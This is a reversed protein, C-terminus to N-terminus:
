SRPAQPSLQITVARRSEEGTDLSIRKPDIRWRETLQSQIAKARQEALNGNRRWERREAYGTLRVALSSYRALIQGARDITESATQDLTTSGYAFPIESPTVTLREFSVSLDAVATERKMIQNIIAQTDPTLDHEGLYVVEVGLRDTLGSVITRVELLASEPPFPLGAALQQLRQSLEQALQSLAKPRPAAAPTRPTLLRTILDGDGMSALNQTLELEVPVGLATSADHEFRDRDAQTFLETASVRLLVIVKGEGIITEKADITSRGRQAFFMSVRKNVEQRIAVERTVRNLASKLPIFIVILFLLIIAVRARRTGVIKVKQYLPLRQALQYFKHEHEEKSAIWTAAQQRVADTDMRVIFFVLMSSVIIAVL